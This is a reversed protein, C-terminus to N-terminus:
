RRAAVCYAANEMRVAGEPTTYRRAAQTVARWAAELREAPHHAIRANLPGSRDRRFETFAAVSPFAYEVTLWEGRVDQFGAAAVSQRLAAVDSLAFPTMAGEDPPPMGLHNLVVRASLSVSPVREPPGWVAAVFRGGPALCGQIAALTAELDAIFMLGWRCLVADFAAEPAELMEADMERYDINGLGLEVARHRAFALMDPSIDIAEVRGTPGVRRAATVAPEGLGTAIDLVRHGPGLAALEVMRDSLPQAGEEIVHFWKHWAAARTADYGVIRGRTKTGGERKTM